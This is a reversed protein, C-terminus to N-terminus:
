ADHGDQRDAADGVADRVDRSRTRSLAELSLRRRVAHPHASTLDVRLPRRSLRLRARGLVDDFRDRGQDHFLRVPEGSRGVGRGFCDPDVAMIGLTVHHVRPHYFCAGLLAGSDPDVAAVCHGPSIRRYIEWFITLERDDCQFFDADLGHQRYWTNFSRKLMSAHALADAEIMPRLVCPAPKAPSSM